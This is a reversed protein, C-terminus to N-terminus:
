PRLRGGCITWSTLARSLPSSCLREGRLTAYCGRGRPPGARCREESRRPMPRSRTRGPWARGPAAADRRTERGCPAAGVEGDRAHHEPRHQLGDLDRQETGYQARNQRDPEAQQGRGVQRRGIDVLRDFPHEARDPADRHDQERQHEDAGVAEARQRSDGGDREMGGPHEPFEVRFGELRGPRARDLREAGGAGRPRLDDAEGHQGLDRRLEGAVRQEAELEVQALGENEAQDPAPPM